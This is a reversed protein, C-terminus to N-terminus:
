EHKYEREEFCEIRTGDIDSLCVFCHGVVVETWRDAKFVGCQYLCEMDSDFLVRDQAAQQILDDAIFGGSQESVPMSLEHSEDTLM